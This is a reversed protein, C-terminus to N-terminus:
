LIVYMHSRIEIIVVRGVQLADAAVAAGCLDVGIGWERQSGDAVQFRAFREGAFTSTHV